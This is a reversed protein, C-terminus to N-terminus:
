NVYYTRINAFERFGTVGGERGYGSKGVGGTPIVAESKPVENIFVMGSRVTEMLKEAHDRDKSYISSGM